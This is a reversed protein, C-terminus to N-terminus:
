TPAAPREAARGNPPPQPPPTDDGPEAVQRYPVLERDLQADLVALSQVVEDPVDRNRPRYSNFLEHLSRSANAAAATILKQGQLKDIIQMYNTRPLRDYALKTRGDTIQDIVHEVRANNRRWYERLIRWNKDNVEDAHAAEQPAVALGNDASETRTSVSLVQLEAVQKRVADVQGSLGAIVPELEKLERVTNRLDWIPGRAERYDQIIRRITGLRLLCGFIALLLGFKFILEAAAKVETWAWDPLGGLWSFFSFIEM